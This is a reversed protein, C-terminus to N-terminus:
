GRDPLRWADPHPGESSAARLTAALAGAVRARTPAAAGALAVPRGAPPAVALPLQWGPEDEGLLRRLPRGLAARVPVALTGAASPDAPSALLAALVGLTLVVEGAPAPTLPGATTATAPAIPAVPDAPTPTVAELHRRLRRAEDAAELLVAQLRAQAGALVENSPAPPLGVAANRAEDLRAAELATAHASLASGLRELLAAAGSGAAVVQEVAGTFTTAASGAWGDEALASTTRGLLGASERLRASDAALRRATAELAAPDGALPPAAAITM